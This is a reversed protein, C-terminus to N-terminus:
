QKEALLVQEFATMTAGIQEAHTGSGIGLNIDPMPINLESFFIQSMADDYHQGTHVLIHEITTDAQEVARVFPAIKIFNPRAGVVSIIKV